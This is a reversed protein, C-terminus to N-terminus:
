LVDPASRVFPYDQVQWRRQPRQARVSSEAPVGASQPHHSGSVRTAAGARRWNPAREGVELRARHARATPGAVPLPVVYALLDYQRSDGHHLSSAVILRERAAPLAKTEGVRWTVFYAADEIRWHPLDRHYIRLTDDAV